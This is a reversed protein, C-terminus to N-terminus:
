MGTKGSQCCASQKLCCLFYHARTKVATTEVHIPVTKTSLSTKSYDLVCMFWLASHRVQCREAGSKVFTGLIKEMQVVVCPTAPNRRVSASTKMAGSRIKDQNRSVEKGGDLREAKVQTSSCSQKIRMRNWNHIIFQLLWTIRRISGVPQFPPIIRLCWYYNTEYESAKLM